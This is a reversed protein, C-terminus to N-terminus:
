LPSPGASNRALSLNAFGQVHFPTCSYLMSLTRRTPPSESAREFACSLKHGIAVPVDCSHAGPHRGPPVGGGAPSRTHWPRRVPAGSPESPKYMVLEAELEYEVQTTCGAARDVHPATAASLRCYRQRLTISLARDVNYATAHRFSSCCSLLSAAELRCRGTLICQSESRPGM